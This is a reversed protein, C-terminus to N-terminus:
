AVAVVLLGVSGLALAVPGLDLVEGAKGGVVLELEGVRETPIQREDVPIRDWLGGAITQLAGVEAGGGNRELIRGKIAVQILSSGLAPKKTEIWSPTQHCPYVPAILNAFSSQYDRHLTFNM